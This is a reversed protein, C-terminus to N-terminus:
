DNTIVEPYKKIFEKMDVYGYLALELQLRKYTIENVKDMIRQMIRKQSKTSNIFLKTM